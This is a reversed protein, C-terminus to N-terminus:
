NTVAALADIKGWGFSSHRSPYYDSSEKLKQLVDDRSMSPDTAWVLTAIGATMATAASSGGVYAPAEGNPALTVATRGRQSYPRRQMVAVFDVASGVHCTTCKKIPSGERIGTVAITQSMNAPFIVGTFFSTFWTSTGAAAFIMKGRDYAYYIGDAVTSSWFLNGISMSIVKVDSRDGAMVLADAVGQKENSTNVVVNSTARIALLDAKYAIGVAGGGYGKPATGLGSMQTGHGCKDHDGDWSRWWWWGTYYTGERESTRCCSQGEDYEQNLNEQDKSAGTDIYAMTINDGKSHAWASVINHYTYNWGYKGDPTTQTYDSQYLPSAASVGCGSSSRLDVEEMSYDLPEIYRVAASARLQAVLSLNTTRIFVIPLKPHIMIHRQDKPVGTKDFHEKIISIVSMRAATWKQDQLDIQKTKGSIDKLGAIRYGIALTHNSHTLAGVIIKDEAWAWRFDGQKKLYDNILNNIETKDPINQDVFSPNEDEKTCANIFLFVFLIFPIKKM